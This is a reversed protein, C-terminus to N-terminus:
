SYFLKSELTSLKKYDEETETTAFLASKPLEYRCVRDWGGRHETIFISDGEFLSREDVVFSIRGESKEVLKGVDMGNFHAFAFPKFRELVFEKFEDMEVHNEALRPYDAETFTRKATM